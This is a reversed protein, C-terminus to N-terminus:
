IINPVSYGKGTVALIIQLMCQVSYLINYSQCHVERKVMTHGVYKNKEHRNKEHRDLRDIHIIYEAFMPATILM